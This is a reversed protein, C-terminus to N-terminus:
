ASAGHALEGRKVWPWQAQPIPTFEGSQQPAISGSGNRRMADLQHRHAPTMTGATERAELARQLAARPGGSKAPDTAASLREMLESMRSPDRRGVPAPLADQKPGHQLCMRLFVDCTPPFEPLHELAYTVAMPNRSVMRHMQGHWDRKVADIPLGEWKRSWADGYRVALRAFLADVWRPLTAETQM